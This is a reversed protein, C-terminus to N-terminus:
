CERCSITLLWNVMLELPVSVYRIWRQTKWNRTGPLASCHTYVVQNFSHIDQDSLSHQHPFEILTVLVLIGSNMKSGIGWVMTSLFWKVHVGFDENMWVEKMGKSCRLTNLTVCDGGKLSINEQGTMSEEPILEWSSYLARIASILDIRLWNSQGTYRSITAM